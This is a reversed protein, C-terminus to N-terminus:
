ARRRLASVGECIAVVVIAAYVLPSVAAVALGWSWTRVRERPTPVRDVIAWTLLVIPFACEAWSLLLAQFLTM